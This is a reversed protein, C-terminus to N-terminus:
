FVDENMTDDWVQSMEGNIAIVLPQTFERRCDFLKDHNMFAAQSGRIMMLSGHFDCLFRLNCIPMVCIDEDTGFNAHMGMGAM